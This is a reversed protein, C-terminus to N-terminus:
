VVDESGVTFVTQGGAAFGGSRVFWKHGSLTTVLEHTQANWVKALGDDSGTPIRSGDASFVAFNVASSHGHLTAIATELPPLVRSAMLRLPLDSGGLRYAERLYVASERPHGELLERRGSETLSAIQEQRAHDQRLRMQWGCIGLVLLLIA